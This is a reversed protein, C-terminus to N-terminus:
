TASAKKRSPRSLDRIADRGIWRASAVDSRALKEATKMAAARLKPNRHGIGRLAWSVGKKVFNREDNAAREILKLSKVFPADPAKKDHLAVSALLAFSARKVFEEKRGSWQDIKKWALPTKDFLHFCATDCDGWNEFGRAWADMQRSTVLTPDDILVALMRGEQSGTKWIKAALAHDRGIKKAMSRLDSVSVGYAKKAVIGFRAMGEVGRRSGRRELEAVISTVSPTM